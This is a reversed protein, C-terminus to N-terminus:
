KLNKTRPGGRGRKQIPEEILPQESETQEIPATEINQVIETIKKKPGRKKKEIIPVEQIIEKVKPKPGRKKPPEFNNKIMSLAQNLKNINLDKNNTKITQISLVGKDNITYTHEKDLKIKIHKFKPSQM